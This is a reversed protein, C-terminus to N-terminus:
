NLIGGRKLFAKASSKEFLSLADKADQETFGLIEIYFGFRFDLCTVQSGINM